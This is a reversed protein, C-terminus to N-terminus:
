QLPAKEGLGLLLADIGQRGLGGPGIMLLILLATVCVIAIFVWQVKTM